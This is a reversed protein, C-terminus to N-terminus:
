RTAPASHISLLDAVGGIQALRQLGQSPHIFQIARRDQTAVRLWELLLSVGASDVRRVGKLDVVLDGKGAALLDIFQQLAASVTSFTMEGKVTIQGSEASLKLGNM